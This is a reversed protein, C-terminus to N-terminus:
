SRPRAALLREAKRAARKLGSWEGFYKGAVGVVPLLSFWEHYFRGHPRKDLEGELAFLARGLRWMAGVVRGLTLRKGPEALEGTLEAARADAAADDAASMARHPDLRRRFMVAALLAVVEGEDHVGHEGAIAVLVLGQAAAGLTKSVPLYRTVVGGLGPVAAVLSTFRGVRRVWWRCRARVDMGAWAATGPVQVSALADLVKDRLRRDEGDAGQDGRLARSRLGFPDAKRLGALVPRTARVFPRLVAVITRDSIPGDGSAM